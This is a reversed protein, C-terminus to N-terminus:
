TVLRGQTEAMYGHKANERRLGSLTYVNSKLQNCPGCLLVRNSIHNWGGDSRPTNHDLQLYRHDDFVRDCGQCKPGHQALLFELMAKRSRPGDQPEAYRETVQLFPVAEEGDDTREPLDTERYVRGFTFLRDGGRHPVALGEDALRDLVIKHAGDWIDIGIWQRDLREAAVCTTACGAFPDLVWDGENSSAKIIREYM